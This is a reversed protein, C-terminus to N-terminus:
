SCFNQCFTFLIWVALFTLIIYLVFIILVQRFGDVFSHLILSDAFTLRLKYEWFSIPETMSSQVIASFSWCYEQLNALTRGQYIIFQTVEFFSSIFLLLFPVSTTGDYNYLQTMFSAIYSSQNIYKSLWWEFISRAHKMYISFEIPAPWTSMWM